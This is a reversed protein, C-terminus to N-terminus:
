LISSKLLALVMAIEAPFDPAYKYGMMTLEAYTYATKDDIRFTPSPLTDEVKKRM